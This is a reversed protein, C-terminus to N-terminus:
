DRSGDDGVRSQPVARVASDSGEQGGRAEDTDRDVEDTGAGDTGPHEGDAGADRPNPGPSETAKVLLAGVM